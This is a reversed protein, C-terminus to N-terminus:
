KGFRRKREGFERICRLFDMKGFEPWTKDLFFLESYASQWLLFTSLRKEGGTRIIMDPESDLYLHRSFFGDDIKKPNVKGAAAHEAIRRAADVIETKGSYGMAFNILFSSNDRTRSELEGMLKQVDRPFLERRGIFRIRIKHKELREDKKLREFERRFINLIQRFEEKPRLFNEQSFCYLTLESVGQGNCWELLQEVKKAGLEHGKWPQLVLKKAFRRNGDLIIAIHRPRM